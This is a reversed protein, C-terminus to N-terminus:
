GFYKRMAEPQQIDMFQVAIGDPHHRMVRGRLKGLKVEAGITPRAETAISAGSISIDVVNVAITVGEDLTLTTSKSALATREHRRTDAAPGLEGRNILFTIQAALKERKHPTAILQMAFGGDISRVVHGEIGGIHDFYAVIREGVPPTVPALIAAGGVSIDCLKCPFEQKSARMFRGLLSIAVRRHRRADVDISSLKSRVLGAPQLEAPNM